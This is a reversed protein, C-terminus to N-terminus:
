GKIIGALKQWRELVLDTSSAVSERKVGAKGAAKATIEAYPPKLDVQGKTLVAAAKPVEGPDIVPMQARDPAWGPVDKSMMEVNSAMQEIGEEPSGFQKTLAAKVKEASMGFKGPTGGDVYKELLSKVNEYTFEDISGKGPNGSKKGFMGKTLVNLVPILEEGPLEAQYGSVSGGPDAM